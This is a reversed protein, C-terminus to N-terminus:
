ASRKDKAITAVYDGLLLKEIKTGQPFAVNLRVNYASMTMINAMGNVFITGLNTPDPIYGFMGDYMKAIDFLLSSNLRTYQGFGFMHLPVNCNKTRKLKKM